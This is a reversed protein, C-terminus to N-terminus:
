NAHLKEALVELLDKVGQQIQVEDTGGTFKEWKALIDPDNINRVANELQLRDEFSVPKDTKLVKEVFLKLFSAVKSNTKGVAIEKQLKENEQVKLLYVGAFFITALLLLIIVAAVVLITKRSVNFPTVTFPM